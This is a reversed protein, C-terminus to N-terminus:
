EHRLAVIPDVRAARRAPLWGAVLAVAALLLIAVVYSLPDTAAVGFLLRRLLRTLPLAVAVGIGLGVLTLRLSGGIVFRAVQGPQAGLAMRVGIENTRLAVVYSLVGYLGIAALLLALGGAIGLLVMTFSLRSMSRDVLTQMEEANALPILPDAEAVARRVAPLLSVPDALTTRVVLHMADAFWRNRGPYPVIPYYIAVAPPENLSAGYVDGVVGTVRFWPTGEGFPSVGRGIPDQGPWFREAFAKSVVVAGTAPDDNDLRTFARGALLPIGLAEFYGPSTPAMGACATMNSERLREAIEADEFAQVWCAYTDAFPLALSLGAATVGPLGRIRELAADYFRWTKPLSDYPYRVRPLYLQVALVGEPDIGPHVARLRQFSRLLLGAGVVLALALAVQTVVMASRLRQREPGATTTRGGEGLTTIGVTTRHRWVPIAALGVAVGLTLALTFLLVPVDLMLNELRPIGSPALAVLWEVSWYGLVLALLGGGLALVASEALSSRAIARRGAGLAARISFERRRNEIRVLFLNVVNAFAILLVLGVAGLLIWLSRALDGVVYHKLPHLVAQFRYRQMFAPSYVTPFADPLAATLRDIEMQAGAVSTGPTLRAIIPITHSNYFPGRQDLRLPVWLDTQLSVSAGQEQPLEIGPALVGIVEYPREDLTLTRGIVGPDAGFERRWFGHGLVVVPPGGPEDDTRDILRGEFARGGLLGLTSATVAAAFAREPGESTAVNVGRRQFAAIADLSTAHERYHFYQAAALNWEEGPGVGPVASKLRVLREADPYSLPQLVVRDLLTFIAATAGLGLGLILVATFTFAPSKRLTRLAYRLEQLM